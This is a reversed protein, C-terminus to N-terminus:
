TGPSEPAPLRVNAVLEDLVPRFAALQDPTLAIGESPICTRPGLGEVVVIFLSRDANVAQYSVVVDQPSGDHDRVTYGYSMGPTGGVTADSPREWEVDRGDCNDRRDRETSEYFGARDLNAALAEGAPMRALDAALGTESGLPRQMWEITGIRQGDHFICILPAEGSDCSSVEWGDVLATPPIRERLDITAIVDRPSPQQASPSATPTGPDAAPPAAPGTGSSCATILLALILVTTRM